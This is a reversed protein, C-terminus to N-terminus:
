LYYTARLLENPRPDFYLSVMRGLVRGTGKGRWRGQRERLDEKVPDPHSGALTNWTRRFSNTGFKDLEVRELGGLKERQLQELRPVVEEHWFQSMVWPTGDPHAWVLAQAQDRGVRALEKVLRMAWRGTRLPARKTRPCCLIDTASFRNEKTQLKARFKLHPRLRKRKAEEGFCFSEKLMGVEQEFLENARSGTQAYAHFALNVQAMVVRQEGRAREFDTGLLKIMDEILVDSFVADQESEAGMRQLLGNMRHTFRFSATPIEGEPVGMKQYYNFVSARYGKATDWKVLAKSGTETDGAVLRTKDVFYWSLQRHDEAMEALKEKSSALMAPVGLDRGWRSMMRLNYMCSKAYSESDRHNEDNTTQVELVLMYMDALVGSVPGRRMVKRFQCKPCRFDPRRTDGVRAGEAVGPKLRSPFIGSPLRYCQWHFGEQCEECRMADVAALDEQCAM